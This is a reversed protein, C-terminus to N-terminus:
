GLSTSREGAGVFRGSASGTGVAGNAARDPRRPPRSPREDDEPEQRAMALSGALFVLVSPIMITRQRALLGFNAVFSFAVAFVVAFVGSFVV